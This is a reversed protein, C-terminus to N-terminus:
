RLSPFFLSLFLFLFGHFSRPQPFLQIICIWTCPLSAFPPTKALLITEDFPFPFIPRELSKILSSRHEALVVRKFTRVAVASITVRLFYVCTEGNRTKNTERFGRVALLSRTLSRSLRRSMSGFTFIGLIAM